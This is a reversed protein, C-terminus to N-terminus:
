APVSTLGLRRRAEDRAAARDAYKVEIAQLGAAHGGAVNVPMDDLYVVEEPALGMAEVAAAYARPDPKLVQTISADIVVDFHELWDQEDVWEQGHFDVLDNTLAALKLGAAKVEAMLEVMDHDLWSRDPRHYLWSILDRTTWGDHGRLRGIEAARQAWYARETVEHRLMRQWLDDGPGGFDVEQVFAHVEPESRSAEWILGTGIRLVVGGIDLLLGKAPATTM